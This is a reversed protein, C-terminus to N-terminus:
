ATAPKQARRPRARANRTGARRFPVRGPSAGPDDDQELWAFLPGCAAKKKTGSMVAPAGRLVINHRVDRPTGRLVSARHAAASLGGRPAM